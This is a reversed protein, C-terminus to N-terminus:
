SPLSCHGTGVASTSWPPSGPSTTPVPLVAATGHTGQSMSANFLASLEPNQELYGFFHTGFVEDFATRGTRVSDELRRWSAIMAPDTFMRVFSHLSDPRDTRLLAGTSTIAFGAAGRDALLGLGALVHLLRHMAQPHAAGEAAPDPSCHASM